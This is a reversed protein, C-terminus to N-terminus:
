KDLSGINVQDWTEAKLKCSVVTESVRRDRNQTDTQGGEARGSWGGFAFGNQCRRRERRKRRCELGRHLLKMDEGIEHSSIVEGGIQVAPKGSRGQPISCKELDVRRRFTM